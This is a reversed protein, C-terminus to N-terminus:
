SYSRERWHHIAEVGSWPGSYRSALVSAIEDQKKAAELATRTNRRRRTEFLIRAEIAKRVVESWNIEKLHGMQKKLRDPLRITLQAM